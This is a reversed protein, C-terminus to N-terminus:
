EPSGDPGKPIIAPLSNYFSRLEDLSSTRNKIPLSAWTIDHYREPPDDRLRRDIISIIGTDTCNRILRGIGQKLKIIMEPVRVDMLPDNAISAKYEIIPDPVPFPLRFIVVNSLTAGEISIGEWYAGTGLLVSNTDDKFEQLIKEQSSGPQQVLVKYPLDRKKLNEYVEEMDTKATFLVLAKGHSIDLVQLLREVGQEIFAEHERTPHPLDDCYYIMAHEDYPYPSPKPASLVGEEGVPFGTNRIFYSYQDELPGTVANTLTASTLITRQDGSFYLRHIIGKTNKPCHVLDANGGHREIWILTDELTDCLEGISASIEDLEDSAHSDRYTNTGYGAYIQVSMSLSLIRDRMENLLSLFHTDADIFFREAYKMDRDTEDIQRQMQVKLCNFLAYIAKEAEIREREVNPRDATRLDNVASRIISILRRQSITETTASRVKDDLNHAEDVIILDAENNILGDLGRRLKMMHSTLFDQNCIVIGGTYRIESRISYYLCKESCSGCNKMSFKQINVKDWISQPLDDPYERRDQLDKSIGDKLVDSARDGEAKLYEEARRHCLYHSQGKALIIEPKVGLLSMIGNADKWLQEQLTITSTAIIVPRKMKQNYLMAPVLYGYSKGIGVGAEIVIHQDAILADVIEFAMDQQGERLELNKDPVVDWFFESISSSMEYLAAKRRKKRDAPSAFGFSLFDYM